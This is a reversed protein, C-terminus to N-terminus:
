AILLYILTLTTITIIIIISVVNTNGETGSSSSSSPNDKKYVKPKEPQAQSISSYNDEFMSSLESSHSVNEDSNPQIEINSQIKESSTNKEVLELFGYEESKRMFEEKFEPNVKGDLKEKYTNALNELAEKENSTGKKINEVTKIEIIEPFSLYEHLHSDESAFEPYDGTIRMLEAKPYFDKAMRLIAQCRTMDDISQDKAIDCCIECLHYYYQSMYQPSYNKRANEILEEGQPSNAKGNVAIMMQLSQFSMNGNSLLDDPGIDKSCTIVDITGEGKHQSDRSILTKLTPEEDSISICDYDIKDAHILIDYYYKQGDKLIIYKRKDAREIKEKDYFKSLSPVSIADIRDAPIPIHQKTGKSGERNQTIEEIISEISRSEISSFDFPIKDKNILKRSVLTVCNPKDTIFESALRGFFELVIKREEESLCYQNCLKQVNQECSDYDRLYYAARDYEQNPMYNGSAVFYAFYEPNHYSFHYATEMGDTTYYYPSVKTESLKSAFIKDVGHRKFIADVVILDEDTSKSFAPSLGKEEIDKKFNSNTGQYCYGNEIFNRYVYEAIKRKGEATEKSISLKKELSKSIIQAFFSNLEDQSMSNMDTSKLVSYLMEMDYPEQHVIIYNTIFGVISRTKLINAALPTGDIALLNHEGITESNSLVSTLIEETEKSNLVQEIVRPLEHNIETEQIRHEKFKAVTKEVLDETSLTALEPELELLYSNFDDEPVNGISKIVEALIIMSKPNNKKIQELKEVEEM